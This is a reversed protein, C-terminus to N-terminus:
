IVYMINLFKLDLVNMEILNGLYVYEYVYIVSFMENWEIM